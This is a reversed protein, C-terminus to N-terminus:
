ALDGLWALVIRAALAEHRKPVEVLPLRTGELMTTMPEPMRDIMEDDVLDIVLTVPAVRECGISTIGYGRLEVKGALVDPPSALLHDGERVLQVRDDAVLASHKGALTAREIIGLALSTKGAGASGRLFVGKGDVIVVCGHTTQVSM